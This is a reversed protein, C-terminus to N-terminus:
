GPFKTKIVKKSTIEFIVYFNGLKQIKKSIIKENEGCVSFFCIPPQYWEIQWSFRYGSFLVAWGPFKTKIVKKSTREFIAYFNGLKQINKSIMKDIEGCVSFFCIPPQYWEIQWQFCYGPLLVGWGPFNTRIIKKSTIEFIVYFNGLKQIKKSIIKENEGCVSFFCIPPQYWEIQWSFRYGSFLVGWGPFKTKIVKKSTREFIAYFNGIKQINKSIIKNIEGCVFFIGIPPQYWEIQWWFRYGPLLVGWGPFNTKIIKKSTIEFIVYFNGLKQINKSIM